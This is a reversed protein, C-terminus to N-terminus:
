TGEKAPEAGVVGSSCPPLKSATTSAACNLMCGNGTRTRLANSAYDSVKTNTISQETTATFEPSNRAAQSATRAAAASSASFCLPLRTPNTIHSTRHRYM